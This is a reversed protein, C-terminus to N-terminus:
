IAQEMFAPNFLPAIRKAWLELEHRVVLQNAATSQQLHQECLAQYRRRVEDASFNSVRAQWMLHSMDAMIALTQESM